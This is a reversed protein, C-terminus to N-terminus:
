AAPRGAVQVASAEALRERVADRLLRIDRIRGYSARHYLAVDRAPAGGISVRRYAVMDDLLSGVQVALQPLFGCGIGAAVMQRLTELSAAQLDDDPRVLRARAPLLALVQDRLCHGEGPLILEAVPVDALAVAPATALAHDRPVALVLEERFLPLATVEGERPAAALLVADTDGRELGALLAAGRGEQVLLRLRSFRARLPQLLLPLLYPGLSDLVGLRFVGSLPEEGAQVVEELRRGEALIRRAQDVVAAGRATVLVQRGGREFIELGLFEELKKVQASLTPQSVACAQAARGFHRLEAVSVVYELDRFSLGAFNM